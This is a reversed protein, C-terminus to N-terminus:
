SSLPSTKFVWTKLYSHMRNPCRDVLVIFPKGFTALVTEFETRYSATLIRMAFTMANPAAWVPCQGNRDNSRQLKASTFTLYRRYYESLAQYSIRMVSWISILLSRRLAMQFPRFIPRGLSAFNDPKVSRFSALFSASDDYMRGCDVTAVSEFMRWTGSGVSM